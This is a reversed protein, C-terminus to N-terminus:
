KQIFLRMRDIRGATDDSLDFCKIMEGNADYHSEYPPLTFSDNVNSGFPLLSLYTDDRPIFVSAINPSERVSLDRTEFVIPNEYWYIGLLSSVGSCGPGSFVTAYRMLDDYYYSPDELSFELDSSSVM